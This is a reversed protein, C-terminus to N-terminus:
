DGETLNKRKIQIAESACEDVCRECGICKEPDVHAGMYDFWIAQVPCIWRCSDCGTCGIIVAIKKM